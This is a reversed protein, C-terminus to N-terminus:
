LWVKDKTQRFAMQKNGVFLGMITGDSLRTLTNSYSHPSFAGLRVEGRDTDVTCDPDDCLPFPEEWRYGM